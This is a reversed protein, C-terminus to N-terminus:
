VDSSVESLRNIMFKPENFHVSINLWFWALDINDICQCQCQVASCVAAVISTRDSVHLLHLYKVKSHSQLSVSVSELIM